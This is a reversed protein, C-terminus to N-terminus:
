RVPSFPVGPPQGKKFGKAGVSLVSLFQITQDRQFLFDDIVRLGYKEAFRGSVPNIGQVFRINGDDLFAPM